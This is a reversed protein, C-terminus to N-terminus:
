GSSVTLSRREAGKSNSKARVVALAAHALMVLTIHRHWANYKRVEYEDLGVENKAVEFGEEVAWRAGAVRVLRAMTTNEPAHCLYFTLETPDSISRRILLLHWMGAAPTQDPVAIAVQAWDYYRQGKAGPGCSRREWSTAPLTAAIADVRQARRTRDFVVMQDCAVTVVYRVAQDHMFARFARHRGYVEDATVWGFPVRAAILDALMDVALEPKTKFTLEEPVGARERRAADAAWSQHVYLRRDIFAHGAPTAYCCFVGIQCNEVQGTVGTYQRAVAVSQDGKKIFGTEDFALVAEPSGFHRVVYERLDDRVADADWPSKALLWQLGDPSGHGAHEALRWGNRRGSCAVLARLYDRARVRSESRAFRSGILAAATDLEEAWDRVDAVTVDDVM